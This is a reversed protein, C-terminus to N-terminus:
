ASSVKDACGVKGTEQRWQLGARQLGTRLRGAWALKSRDSADRVRRQIGVVSSNQRTLWPRPRSPLDTCVCAAQSCWVRPAGRQQM